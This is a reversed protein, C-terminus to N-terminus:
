GVSVGQDFLDLRKQKSKEPFMQLLFIQEVFVKINRRSRM